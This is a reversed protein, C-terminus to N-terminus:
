SRRYPTESHKDMFRGKIRDAGDWAMRMFRIAEGPASVAKLIALTYPVLCLRQVDEPVLTAAAQSVSVGLAFGKVVIDQDTVSSIPRHILIKSGDSADTTSEPIGPASLLTYFEPRTGRDDRWKRSFRDLDDLTVADLNGDVTAGDTRLEVSTIDIFKSDLDYEATNDTLDIEQSATCIGCKEAIAYWGALIVSEVYADSFTRNTGIMNPMLNQVKAKTGSVVASM